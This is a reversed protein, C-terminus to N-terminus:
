NKLDEIGLLHIGRMHMWSESDAEKLSHDLGTFPSALGLRHDEEHLARHVGQRHAECCPAVSHVPLVVSGWLIAGLPLAALGLAAPGVPSPVGRSGRGAIM